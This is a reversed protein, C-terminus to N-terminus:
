FSALSQRGINMFSLEIVCSLACGTRTKDVFEKLSCARVEGWMKSIMQDSERVESMNSDERATENVCFKRGSQFNLLFRDASRNLRMKRKRTSQNETCYYANAKIKRDCHALLTPSFNFRTVEHFMSFSCVDGIKNIQNCLIFCYILIDAVSFPLCSTRTQHSPHHTVSISQLM